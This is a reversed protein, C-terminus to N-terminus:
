LSTPSEDGLPLPPSNSDPHMTEGCLGDKGNKKMGHNVGCQIWGCKEWVEGLVAEESVECLEWFLASTDAKSSTRFSQMPPVMTTTSMSLASFVLGAVRAQHRYSHSWM